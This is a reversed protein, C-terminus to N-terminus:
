GAPRPLLDLLRHRVHGLSPLLHNHLPLGQAEADARVRGGFFNRLLSPYETRDSKLPINCLTGDPQNSAKTSM